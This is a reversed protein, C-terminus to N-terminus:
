RDDTASEAEYRSASQAARRIAGYAGSHKSELRTFFAALGWYDVYEPRALLADILKVRKDTAKDATFARVEDSTPLTGIVDLMVRRLFEEDSALVTPQVRMRQWEALVLEDLFNTPAFEIAVTEAARSIVDRVFRIPRSPVSLSPCCASRCCALVRSNSNCRKAARSWQSTLSQQRQTLKPTRHQCM